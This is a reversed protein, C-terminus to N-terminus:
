SESNAVDRLARKDNRASSLNDMYRNACLASVVILPMYVGLMLRPHNRGAFTLVALGVLQTAAVGINGGGANLGLAWGKLRQPYFSSCCSSRGCVGYM